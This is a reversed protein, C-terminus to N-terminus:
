SMGRFFLAFRIIRALGASNFKWPVPMTSENEIISDTVMSIAGKFHGKGGRRYWNDAAWVKKGYAVFTSRSCHNAEIRM